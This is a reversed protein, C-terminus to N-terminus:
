TVRQPRPGLVGPRAILSPKRADVNESAARLDQLLDAAQDYERSKKAAIFADVRLWARLDPPTVRCTRHFTRFVGADDLDM